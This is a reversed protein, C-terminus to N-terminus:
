PGNALGVLFLFARSRLRRCDPASPLRGQTGADRICQLMHGIQILKGQVTIQFADLCEKLAVRIKNKASSVVIAVPGQANSGLAAM